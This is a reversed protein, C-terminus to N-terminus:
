RGRPGPRFRHDQCARRRSGAPYQGAQHRPSDLGDCAGRGSRRRNAPRHPARGILELPGTADVKQQLTRGAVYEMVLYPIPQDEVAYIAIVNEHRVAAASRAERVFRKRAASTTALFPSMLKIAVFRHLKKDFAKVVTGFGGNGLVELVEYHALRGLSGPRESPELVSLASEIDDGREEDLTEITGAGAGADRPSAESDSTPGLSTM